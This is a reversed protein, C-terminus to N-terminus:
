WIKIYFLPRFFDGENYPIPTRQNNTLQQNINNPIINSKLPNKSLNYKQHALLKDKNKTIISNNSEYMTTSSPKMSSPVVGNNENNQKTDNNSLLYGLGLVGSTIGLEM